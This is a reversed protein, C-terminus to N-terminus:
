KHLRCSLCSFTNGRSNTKRIRKAGLVKALEFAKKIELKSRECVEQKQSALIIYYPAHITLTINHEKALSAYRKAQEEQM